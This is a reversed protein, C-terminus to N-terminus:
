TVRPYYVIGYENKASAQTNLIPKLLNLLAIEDGYKLVNQIRKSWGTPTAGLHQKAYLSVVFAMMDALQVFYSQESSKPLPDEILNEIEKRYSNYNFKSPIYNIRQIKRTVARMAGVRGEDTIILFKAASGLIGLDNAIRQVNYTLANKLVFYTPRKINKKDIVVNVVRLDLTAMFQCFDFLIARRTTKSYLGHYPNKDAVFERTHFEQKIPFRYKLRLNRRFQYIKQHIDQWNSHHLYVSSLVFLDSSYKPYGDDGSEDFYAIFM